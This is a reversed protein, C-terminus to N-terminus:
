RALMGLIDNRLAYVFIVVFFALGVYSVYRQARVSLPRRIVAQVVEILVKGGDLPPIPLLNMFGLSMSVAAVFLLLTNIGESAAESAMASIGIVSSAGQLTEMTHQPMILRVAFDAVMQGYRVAYGASEVLGLQRHGVSADIGLKDWVEDAPVDITLTREVGDQGVAVVEFDRGQSRVAGLAATLSSWSDVDTGDIRRITDGAKLGAVDALSGAEVGGLTNTDLITDVGVTSLSVTVILFAVVINVLPGALLTIVRRLFGKGLYTQSREHALFAEADGEIPRPEGAATSGPRSFDHGRDYETLLRDDRALTEFAEPYTAQGEYEGKDPNYYPRISAWDSLTALLDLADDVSVDLTAAVDSAGVRGRRQVLALCAALKDSRTGEMGCIRTYGGLLIPTVGFRTGRGKSKWSVNHRFPMGLFFETVRMGCARAFLYHGGEHVFVLVSLVVIGWFLAALVPALASM